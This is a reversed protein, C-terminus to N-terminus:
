LYVDDSTEYLCCKTQPNMTIPNGIQNSCQYLSTLVELPQNSQKESSEANVGIDSQSNKNILSVLIQAVHSVKLILNLSQKVEYILFHFCIHNYNRM